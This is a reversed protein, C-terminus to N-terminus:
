ATTNKLTSFAIMGARNVRFGYFEAAQRTTISQKVAEFVNM